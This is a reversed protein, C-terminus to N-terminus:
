FVRKVATQWNSYLQRAATTSMAPRYRQREQTLASLDALSKKEGMGLMGALAAGRASSEPVDTTAVEIQLIDATFQMLFSNGTAGGDALLLTPQLDSEANLQEIVDRVQYAISELAARVVHARTSHATMGVIAARAEPRWYPTGLGSFAPVLYVGGNDSVSRALTETENADDILRLQDKLWAVTALSSNIIGEIAFTPKGKWVWALASVSGCKSPKIREGTNLLVSTGTGFTAKCAGREYCGQAFLSAQSDGMVGCIRLGKPLAGEADTTGFDAFSEQVHALARLPVDFLSCLEEDWRLRDLNFLLTRSANTHDTAFVKTRTLRYILYTDMTGVLADGSELQRRLPANAHILWKLKSGTFYTDLKLGTTAQVTAEQGADRLEQCIKEGRRCQWVIAPHLPRGTLRDFAIFTERQNTISLATAAAVLAPNRGALERLVTLVNQWIEEADQEVWGAQPYSQRHPRVARDVTQAAADFLVAKTASTSQDIAVIHTM